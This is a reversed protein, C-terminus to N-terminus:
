LYNEEATSMEEM